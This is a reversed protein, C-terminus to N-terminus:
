ERTWGPMQPILWFYFGVASVHSGADAVVDELVVGSCSESFFARNYSNGSSAELISSRLTVDEGGWQHFAQASEGGVAKCTVNEFLADSATSDVAFNYDGNEARIETQTVVLDSTRAILTHNWSATGTAALGTDRVEMGAGLVNLVISFSGPGGDCTNVVAMRGLGSRESDSFVLGTESGGGTDCVAGTVTTLNRGAGELTTWGYIEIGTDGVDYMGPELKLLLAEEQSTPPAIAAIASRLATGNQTPTGVPGVV